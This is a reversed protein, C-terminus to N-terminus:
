GMSDKEDDFLFELGQHEVTEKPKGFARDLLDKAATVEGNKARAILADMIPELDSIVRRIIYERAKEAQLTHGGKSGKPRGAGPRKGGYSAM